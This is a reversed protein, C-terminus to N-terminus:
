LTHLCALFGESESDEIDPTLKSGDTRTSDTEDADTDLDYDDLERLKLMYEKPYITDSKRLLKRALAVQDGSGFVRDYLIEYVLAPGAFM